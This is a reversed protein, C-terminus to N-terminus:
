QGANLQRILWIVVFIAAIVGIFFSIGLFGSRELPSSGSADTSPRPTRWSESGTAPGSVAQQPAEHKTEPAPAAHKVDAPAASRVSVDNRTIDSRTSGDGADPNAVRLAGAIEANSFHKKLEEIDQLSFWDGGAECFESDRPVSGALLRKKLETAPMPGQIEGKTKRLLWHSDAM